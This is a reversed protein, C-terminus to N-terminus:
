AIAKAVQIRNKVMAGNRQCMVRHGQDLTVHFIGGPAVEHVVGAGVAHGSRQKHRRLM